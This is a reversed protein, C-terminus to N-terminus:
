IAEEIEESLRAWEDMREELVQQLREYEQGLRLVQAPNAPPNELKGSVQAIQKEIEFIEAELASLRQKRQREKNTNGV